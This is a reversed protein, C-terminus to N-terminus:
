FNVVTVSFFIAKNLNENKQKAKRSLTEKHLLPKSHGAVGNPSWASRSSMFNQRERGELHQFKLYTGSFGTKYFITLYSALLYIFNLKQRTSM